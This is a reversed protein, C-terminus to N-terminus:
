LVTGPIVGPEIASLVREDLSAVDTLGSTRHSREGLRVVLHSKGLTSQPWLPCQADCDGRVYSLRADQCERRAEGIANDSELVVALPCSGPKNLEEDPGLLFLKRSKGGRGRLLVDIKFNQMRQSDRHRRKCFLTPYDGFNLASQRHELHQFLRDARVTRTGLPEPLGDQLM